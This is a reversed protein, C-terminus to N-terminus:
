QELLEDRAGVQKMLGKIMANPNKVLESPLSDDDDSSIYNDSSLTDEDSTVYKPSSSSKSKVKMKIKKAMLCTHKPLNTFLSKSSSAKGKIAITALDDSESESSEDSSNWEQGVHAQGYPKKKTFKKDKKYGKHFKKKKENDEERKEYPCQFIFHGNKGCNYCVRKSRPREKKNGKFPRRKNIFKNFNKIFLAM